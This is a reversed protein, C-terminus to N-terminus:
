ILSDRIELNISVQFNSMSKNQKPFTNNNIKHHMLLRVSINVIIKPQIAAQFQTSQSVCLKGTGQMQTPKHFETLLPYAKCTCLQSFHGYKGSM